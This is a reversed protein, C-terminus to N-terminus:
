NGTVSSNNLTLTATTDAVPTGSIDRCAGQECIQNEACTQCAVGGSGCASPDATGPLCAGEGDCCGSCTEECANTAVQCAGDQCTRGTRGPCCLRDNNCPQGEKLCRCRRKKKNCHKTCCQRDKECRNDPGSGDGCPGEASVGRERKRGRKRRKNKGKRDRAAPAGTSLPGLGLLSALTAALAERRSGAAHLNLARAFADFRRHDVLDEEAHRASSLM